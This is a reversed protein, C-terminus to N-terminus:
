FIMKNFSPLKTYSFLLKMLRYILLLYNNYFIMASNCNGTCNNEALSADTIKRRRADYVCGSGYVDLKHKYKERKSPSIASKDPKPPPVIIPILQEAIPLSYELWSGTRPAELLTEWADNREGSNEQYYELYVQMRRKESKM